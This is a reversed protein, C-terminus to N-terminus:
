KDFVFSLEVPNYWEAAFLTLCHRRVASKRRRPGASVIKVM